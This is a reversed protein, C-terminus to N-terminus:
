NFEGSDDFVPDFDDGIVDKKLSDIYAKGLSYDEAESRSDDAFDMESLFEDKVEQEAKHGVQDSIDVDSLSAATEHAQSSVVEDTEIEYDDGIVDKEKLQVAEQGEKANTTENEHDNEEEWLMDLHMEMKQRKSDDEKFIDSESLDANERDLANEEVFLHAELLDTEKINKRIKHNTIIIRIIGSIMLVAFLVFAMRCVFITDHLLKVMLFCVTEMIVFYAIAGFQALAGSRSANIKDTGFIGKFRFMFVLNSPLNICQDFKRLKKEFFFGYLYYFVSVFLNCLTFFICYGILFITEISM